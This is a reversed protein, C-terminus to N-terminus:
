FLDKTVWKEDAQFMRGRDETWGRSLCNRETQRDTEREKEGEGRVVYGVLYVRYIGLSFIRGTKM